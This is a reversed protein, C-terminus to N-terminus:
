FIRDNELSKFVHQHGKKSLHIPDFKLFLEIANKNECFSNTLDIYSLNIDSLINKLKNQPFLFFDSCKGKTVQFSYPLLVVLIQSEFQDSKYKIESLYKKALLLNENNYVSFLEDFYRKPPNSVLGKFYTYILLKDRLFINLTGILRKIYSVELESNAEFAELFHLDSINLFIIIKKAYNKRFFNDIVISYNYLNYGVVSSNYFNKNQYKKRLLGVFTEPEVIGVGFSTSDGLILVNESFKKYKFQNNEIRFGNEDTYSKIGFVKGVYNKNNEFHPDETKVILGKEIGNFNIIEKYRFLFEVSFILLIILFFNIFFIKVLKLKKNL